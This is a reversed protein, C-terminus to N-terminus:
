AAVARGAAGAAVLFEGALANFGAPDEQFPQHGCGRFVATDAHAIASAVARCHHLGLVEDMEGATVLTPAVIAGLRDGADYALAAGAAAIFAACAPADGLAEDPAVADLRRDIMWAADLATPTVSLAIVALVESLSGAQEAAAIWSEVLSRFPADARVWSGNLLLSRVRAPVAAGLEQAAAAGLGSGIIHAAAIGLGDLVALADRAFDHITWPPPPASSRGTGRNDLVTVRFRRALADVQAEWAAGDDGLGAILLVDEGAGETRTWLSGGMSEVYPM